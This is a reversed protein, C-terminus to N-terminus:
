STQEPENKERKEGTKKSAHKYYLKLNNKERFIKDINIKDQKDEDWKIGKMYNIKDEKYAFGYFKYDNEIIKDKPRKGYLNKFTNFTERLLHSPKKGNRELLIHCHLGKGAEDPNTGRQEFTYYVEGEIWEKMLFKNIAKQLTSLKTEPKPNITIFALYKTDKRKKIDSKLKQQLEMEKIIPEPINETYGLECRMKLNSKVTSKYVEKYAEQKIDLYSQIEKLKLELLKNQELLKMTENTLETM